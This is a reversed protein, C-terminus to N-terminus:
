LDLCCPSLASGHCRSPSSLAPGLLSASGPISPSLLMSPSLLAMAPSRQDLLPLKLHLRLTLRYLLLPFPSGFAGEVGGVGLREVPGLSVAPEEGVLCLPEHDAEQHVDVLLYRAFSLPQPPHAAMAEDAGHVHSSGQLAQHRLLPPPAQEGHARPVLVLSSM